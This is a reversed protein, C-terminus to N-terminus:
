TCWGHQAEALRSALRAFGLKDWATKIRENTKHHLRCVMAWKTKFCLGLFQRPSKTPWIVLGCSCIKLGLGSFGLWFNQPWVVLVAAVPKSALGPSITSRPKSALSIFEREEDGQARHLSCVTDGSREITRGSLIRGISLWRRDKAGLRRSSGRDENNGV